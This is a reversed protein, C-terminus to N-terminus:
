ILENYYSFVKKIDVENKFSINNEGVFEKIEEKKDSMLKLVTSKKFKIQKLKGEKQIFYISNIVIRDKGMKKQTMPNLTALVMETEYIKYISFNVGVQIVELLSNRNNGIDKKVFFRNGIRVKSLDNSNFVFSKNTARDFMAEVNNKAVNFNCHELKFGKGNLDYIEANNSWDDFLYNSGNLDDRESKEITWEGKVFNLLNNSGYGSGGMGNSGSSLNVARGSPGQANLFYLSCLIFAFLLLKKM